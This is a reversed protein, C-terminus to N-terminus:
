QQQETEDRLKELEPTYLDMIKSFPDRQEETLISQVNAIVNEVVKESLITLQVLYDAVESRVVEFKKKTAQIGIMLLSLTAKLTAENLGNKAAIIGVNGLATVVHGTADEFDKEVTIGGILFLSEVAIETADKLIKEASAVGVKELSIAAQIAAVELRNEIATSGVKGLSFAAKEAAEKLEKEAAVHGVVGLSVAVQKAADELKKEAAAQGLYRLAHTVVVAADSLEKKAAAQGVVGLAHATQMAPRELGREIAARGVIKLAYASEVAAWELEAFEDNVKKVVSEGFKWLSEIVEYTSEENDRSLALRGALAVPICFRDNLAKVAAVHGDDAALETAILGVIKDTLTNLGFRTTALDYRMISGHVIDIIPQTPDDNSEFLKDKTIKVALRDLMTSPNLLTITNWMYPFLMFFTFAVTIYASFIHYELYSGFLSIERLDGAQIMKLVLLGYLISVVYFLLLIWMDPNDRFIRIVRPSYASATLQVAVLTLTVVIAIIAAQAQVMASLMYRASDADTQFLNFFNFFIAGVVAFLLVLLFYELIRAPGLHRIEWEHYNEKLIRLSWCCDRKEEPMHVGYEYRLISIKGHDSAAAEHIRV